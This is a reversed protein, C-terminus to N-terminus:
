TACFDQLGSLTEFWALGIRHPYGRRRRRQGSIGGAGDFAATFQRRKGTRLCCREFRFHSIQLILDQAATAIKFLGANGSRDRTQRRILHLGEALPDIDWQATM